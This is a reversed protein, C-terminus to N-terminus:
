IGLEFLIEINTKRIQSKLYDGFILAEMILAIKM